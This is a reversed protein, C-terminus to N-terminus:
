ALEKLIGKILAIRETVSPVQASVRLRNPGALRYNRKSQILEIIRRPEIPPDPIFQIQIMDASADIKAIGLPKSLIRLRHSELLAQTPELPLGFRDM